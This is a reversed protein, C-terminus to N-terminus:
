FRRKEGNKFDIKDIKEGVLKGENPEWILSVFGLSLLTFIVLLSNSRIICVQHGAILYKIECFVIIKSGKASAILIIQSFPRKFRM